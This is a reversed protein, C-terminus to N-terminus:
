ANKEYSVTTGTVPRTTGAKITLTDVPKGPRDVPKGPRTAPKGPRTAPKGPRTALVSGGLILVFAVGAVLLGSTSSPLHKKAWGPRSEM